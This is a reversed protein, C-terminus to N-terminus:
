FYSVFNTSNTDRFTLFLISSFLSSCMKKERWFSLDNSKKREESLCHWKRPLYLNGHRCMSITCLYAKRRWFHGTCTGASGNAPPDVFDARKTHQKSFDGNMGGNDKQATLSIEGEQLRETVICLCVPM